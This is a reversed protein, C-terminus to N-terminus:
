LIPAYLLSEIWLEQAKLQERRCMSNPVTFNLPPYSLLSPSFSFIIYIPHIPPLVQRRRLRHVVDLGPQGAGCGCQGDLELCM